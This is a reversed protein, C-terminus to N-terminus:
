FMIDIWLSTVGAKPNTVDVYPLSRQAVPKRKLAGECLQSFRSLKTMDAQRVDVHFCEAEVPRIKIFSSIQAKKLFM